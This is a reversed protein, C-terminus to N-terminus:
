YYSELSSLRVNNGEFLERFSISFITYFDPGPGNNGTFAGIQPHKMLIQWFINNMEGRQPTVAGTPRSKSEESGTIHNTM